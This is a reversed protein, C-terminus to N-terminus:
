KIKNHHMTDKPQSLGDKIGHLFRKIYTRRQNSFLSYYFIKVLYKIGNKIKWELPVYKRRVLWLYNRYQYYIRFPPTIAIPRYLFFKDGEGLQHSLQTTLSIFFDVNAKAHARWCWEYDVGDIFLSEEMMGIQKFLQLPLLSASSIIQKVKIIQGNLITENQTSDTYRRGNQKNIPQPGIGGVHYGLSSLLEINKYLKTVMNDPVLSDQDMFLIYDYKNTTFYKIGENQAAAIGINYGFRRYVINQNHQAIQEAISFAEKPTNDGIFIKNVQRSLLLVSEKLTVVDPNYAILVCGIKMSMLTNFHASQAYNDM